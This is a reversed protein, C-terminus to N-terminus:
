IQLWLVVTHLGRLDENHTLLFVTDENELDKHKQHHDTSQAPSWNQCYSMIFISPFNYLNASVTKLGNQSWFTNESIVCTQWLSTVYTHLLMITKIYVQLCPSIRNRLYLKTNNVYYKIVDSMRVMNCLMVYKRKLDNDNLEALCKIFLMTSRGLHLTNWQKLTWTMVPECPGELPILKVAKTSEPFTCPLINRPFASM